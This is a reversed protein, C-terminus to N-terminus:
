GDGGGSSVSGAVPSCGVGTGYTHPGDHRSTALGDCVDIRTSDKILTFETMSGVDAIVPEIFAKKM